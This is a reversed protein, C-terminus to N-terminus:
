ANEGGGQYYHIFEDEVSATKIEVKELDLKALDAILRNADGEFLFEKTEGSKTTYSVTQKHRIKASHLDLYDVLRGDRIVAVRDCYKEIESLNHSSLFITVGQKKEELLLSFFKAQMLPDLGSTPEDLVLISGGKLLMQIISVKKRNGLSLESIRQHPDLEFYKTLQTVKEQSKGSFALSLKFIDMCTAADYFAADGPMYGLFRKIQKANRVSDLGNITITGRSPFIMNTIARLTTTKGAGNKGVFGVIEGEAISLNLDDVALTKGYFKSFHSIEIIAM